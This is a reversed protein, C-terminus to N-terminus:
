APASAGRPEGPEAAEQPREIPGKGEILVAASVASAIALGAAILMVLRFGAVFSEAVAEKIATTQAGEVGEPVDAGGLDVKEAELAAVSESSLGLSAIRSDLTISFATFMVVGLVAIALLSAVRSVANNVGSALGSHHGRVSNLAVTTLAPVVVSLGLGLVLVAPFFTTWYSGGIGPLAFLAFGVAAITPGLVLPFRAGFRATLGGTYRSLFFMLLIAPLFAAGAATASYSQVQILNFPFYYLAGGLGFYLFLTFTNAGTFSRSRFLNLPMMPEEIRAETVVFAV